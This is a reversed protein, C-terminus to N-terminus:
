RARVAKILVALGVVACVVIVPVAWIAEPTM